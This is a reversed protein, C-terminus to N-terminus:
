ANFVDINFDCALKLENNNTINELREIGTSWYYPTMKLLTLLAEGKKLDITFTTRKHHKHHLLPTMNEVM